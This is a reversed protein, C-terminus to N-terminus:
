PALCVSVIAGILILPIGMIGLKWFHKQGWEWNETPKFLLASAFLAFGGFMLGKMIAPVM